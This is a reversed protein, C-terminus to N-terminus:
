EALSRGALKLFVDELTSKRVIASYVDYRSLDLTRLFGGGDDTYLFLRGPLREIYSVRESVSKELEDLRPDSSWIELVEGKVHEAILERPSGLAIIRGRDMVVLCDCLKEAEEM